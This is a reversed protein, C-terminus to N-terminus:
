QPVFGITYAWWPAPPATSPVGQGSIATFVTRGYFFPLGWAFSCDQSGGTCAAGSPGALTSFAADTPNGSFLNDANDVTFNVMSQASNTGVNVATIATPSTPCFLSSRPSPCIPLGGDPFFIGSLGSDISATLSQGTTFVNTTFQNTPGLTFITANGMTNNTQTGIGFTLSGSLTTAAGSLPSFQLAIGNNDKPFFVAPHTVQQPVLVFAPNCANAACVYYVPAPAAAGSTPDCAIGCDQPELGVGLIGNAGLALQSDHDIGAGGSTCDSPITFNTPDAIAQISISSAVEGAIRVDAVAVNGWLYSQDVFQACESVANGKGDTLVPLSPLASALVRLGSSGTDILIGGITNCTLTGPTCITVSTFGGNPYVQGSVPGGDVAVPQV